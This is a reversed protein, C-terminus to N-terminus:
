RRVARGPVDTDVHQGDRGAGRLRRLRELEDCSHLEGRGRPRDPQLTQIAALSESVDSKRPLARNRAARQAHRGTRAALAEGDPERSGEAPRDRAGRERVPDGSSAASRSTNATFEAGGSGRHTSPPRRPQVHRDGRRHGRHRGRRGLERSASPADVDAEKMETPSADAAAYDLMARVRPEISSATRHDAAIADALAPDKTLKRLAASHPVSAWFGTSTPSPSPGGRDDRAGGQVPRSEGKM